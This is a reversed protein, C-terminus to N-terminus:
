LPPYLCLLFLLYIIFKLYFCNFIYYILSIMDYEPYLTNDDTFYPDEGGQLVFTKFGLDEGIDCCSLIEEQTLRYREAKLNGCRIGCYYCDNKCYNTFEVLGRLFVAKGYCSEAESRAAAYLYEVSEEDSAELIYGLQDKSIRKTNKIADTINNFDRDM